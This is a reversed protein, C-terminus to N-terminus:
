DLGLDCRWWRRILDFRFRYAGGPVLDLYHDRQMLRVLSRLPARDAGLLTRARDNDPRFATQLRAHLDNLDLPQTEALIDLLARVTSAENQYYENLRSRFHHLDWPDEPATLAAAITAAVTEPTATRRQDALAAVVQHIYFPIADVLDAICAATTANAAALGEGRLLAAALGAADSRDLPPVEVICMGELPSNVYGEDRLGTVVHHLGISGAYVLRLGPHTQRLSRLLDLLDVVVPEGETRAIKQLAWPLEDWILITRQGTGHLLDGLLRELAVKWSPGKSEPLRLIGGVELGGLASWHEALWGTAKKTAGLHVRIAQALREVLEAARSVAGIDMYIVRLDPAAEAQMKRAITTKGLRRESVLVLSQRELTAWLQAILRERGVVDAPSVIGGPNAKM